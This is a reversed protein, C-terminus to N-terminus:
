ESSYALKPAAHQSQQREGEMEAATVCCYLLLLAATFYSEPLMNVKSDSVKWRLLLLAATFCCYHLLLTVKLCCTSLQQREGEIESTHQRISAYAPTHQRASTHKNVAARERRRDARRRGGGL